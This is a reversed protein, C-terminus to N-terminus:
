AKTSDVPADDKRVFTRVAKSIIEADELAFIGKSQAFVAAQVLVSLAENQTLTEPIPQKFASAAAGTTEKQPAGQPTEM